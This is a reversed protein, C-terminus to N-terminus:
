GGNRLDELQAILRDRAQIDEDSWGQFFRHSEMLAFNKIRIELGRIQQKKSPAKMGDDTIRRAM